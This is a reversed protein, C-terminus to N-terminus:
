EDELIMEILKNINKKFEKKWNEDNDDDEELQEVYNKGCYELQRGLEQLYKGAEIQDKSSKRFKEVPLLEIVFHLNSYIDALEDKCKPADKVQGLYKKLDGKIYEREITDRIMTKIM